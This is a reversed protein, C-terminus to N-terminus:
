SAIVEQMNKELEPKPTMEFQDSCDLLGWHGEIDLGSAAKWPADAMMFAVTPATEDSGLYESWFTEWGSVTNPFGTEGVVVQTALGLEAIRAQLKATEDAVYEMGDAPAVKAFYPHINPMAVDIAALLADSYHEPTDAYAIQVGSGQTLQRAEAIYNLLQKETLSEALLAENGVCLINVAGKGLLERAREMEADNAAFDASLWVGAITRLGKTHAHEVAYGADLLGYVRIGGAYKSVGDVLKEIQEKPVPVGPAQGEIVFPDFAIYDFAKPSVAEGRPPLRDRIDDLRPAVGGAYIITITAALLLTAWVIVLIVTDVSKWKKMNM